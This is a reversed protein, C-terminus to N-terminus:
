KQRRNISMGPSRNYALAFATAWSLRARDHPLYDSRWNFETLIPKAAIVWSAACLHIARVM